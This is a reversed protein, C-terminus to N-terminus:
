GSVHRVLLLTCRSLKTLILNTLNHSKFKVKVRLPPRAKVMVTPDKNLVGKAQLALKFFSNPTKVQRVFRSVMQVIAM